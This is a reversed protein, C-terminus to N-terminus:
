IRGVQKTALNVMAPVVEESDREYATYRNIMGLGYCCLIQSTLEIRADIMQTHAVTLKM